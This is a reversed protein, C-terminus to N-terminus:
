YYKSVKPQGNRSGRYSGREVNAQQPLRNQPDFESDDGLVSVDLSGEIPAAVAQNSVDGCPTRLPPFLPSAAGSAPETTIYSKNNSSSGHYLLTQSASSIGRFDEGGEGSRRDSDM